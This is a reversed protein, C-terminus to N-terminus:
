KKWMIIKEFVNSMQNVSIGLFLGVYGGVEALLTIGTYSWHTHTVKIYRQFYLSVTGNSFYYESDEDGVYKEHHSSFSTTVQTCSMPCIKALSDSNGFIISKHMEKAKYALEKDM